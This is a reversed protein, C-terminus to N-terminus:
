FFLRPCDCDFFIQTLMIKWKAMRLLTSKERSINLTEDFIFNSAECKAINSFSVKQLSKKRKFNASSVSMVVNVQFPRMWNWPHNEALSVSISFFNYYLALLKEYISVSRYQKMLEQIKGNKSLKFNYYNSCLRQLLCPTKDEKSKVLNRIFLRHGEANSILELIQLLLRQREEEDDISRKKKRGFSLGIVFLM